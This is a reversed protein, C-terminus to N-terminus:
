NPSGCVCLCVCVGFGVVVCMLIKHVMKSTLTQHQEPLGHLKVFIWSSFGEADCKNCSHVLLRSGLFNQQCLMGIPWTSEYPKHYPEFHKVFMSQQVLFQNWFHGLVIDNRRKEIRFKLWLNMSIDDRCVTPHWKTDITYVKSMREGFFM